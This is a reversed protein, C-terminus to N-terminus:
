PENKRRSPRRALVRASYVHEGWDKAPSPPVCREVSAALPSLIRALQDAAKDGAADHDLALAVARGAVLPRWVSTTFLTSASPIAVVAGRLHAVALVTALAVADLAGETVYLPLAADKALAALALAAGFPVNPSADRTFRYAKEGEISRFQLCTVAGTEDRWPVVL